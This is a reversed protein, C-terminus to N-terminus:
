GALAALDRRRELYAQTFFAHLESGRPLVNAEHLPVDNDAANHALDLVQDRRLQTIPTIHHM